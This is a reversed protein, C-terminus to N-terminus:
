NETAWNQALGSDSYSLESKEGGRCTMMYKHILLGDAYSLSNTIILHNGSPHKHSQTPNYLEMTSTNFREESHQRQGSNLWKRKFFVCM